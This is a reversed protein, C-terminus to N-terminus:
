GAETVLDQPPLLILIGNQSRYFYKGDETLLADEDIPADHAKKEEDTAVRLKQRSVPCRLVSLVKADIM